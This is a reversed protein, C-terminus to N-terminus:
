WKFVSKKELKKYMETKFRYILNTFMQASSMTSLLEFNIIPSIHVIVKWKWTLRTKEEERDDQLFVPHRVNNSMVLRKRRTEYLEEPKETTLKQVHFGTIVPNETTEGQV